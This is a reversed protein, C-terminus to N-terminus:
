CKRFHYAFSVIASVLFGSFGIRKSRAQDGPLWKIQQLWRIHDTLHWWMMGLQAVYFALQNDWPCPKSLALLVSTSSLWRLTRRSNMIRVFLARSREHVLQALEQERSGKPYAEKLDAAVGAVGRASYHVLKGLKDRGLSTGLFAHLGKLSTDFPDM